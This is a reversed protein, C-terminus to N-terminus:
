KKPLPKAPTQVATQMNDFMESTRVLGQNLLKSKLNPKVGCLRVEAPRARISKQVQAMFFIAEGSIDEVDRFNFIFVTASSNMMIEHELETLPDTRKGKMSGVLSIVMYIGKTATFYKFEVPDSM